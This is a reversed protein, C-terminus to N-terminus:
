RGNANKARLVLTLTKRKGDRVIEISLHDGPKRDALLTRLEGTGTIVTKDVSLVIDDLELGAEAAAGGNSVKTVRVGGEIGAQTSEELTLNVFSAGVTVKVDVRDPKHTEPKVEPTPDPAREPAPQTEKDAKGKRLEELREDLQERIKRREADLDRLRDRLEKVRADDAFKDDKDATSGLTILMPENRGNSRRVGLSLLDGPRKDGMLTRMQEISTVSNEGASLIVDGVELGAEKAPSKDDVRTVKLGGEIGLKKADSGEVVELAVGLWASDSQACLTNASLVLALAAFVLGAIRM